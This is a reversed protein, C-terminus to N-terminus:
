CQLALQLHLQSPWCLLGRQERRRGLTPWALRGGVGERTMKEIRCPCCRVMTAVIQAITAQGERDVAAITQHAGNPVLGSFLYPMGCYGM